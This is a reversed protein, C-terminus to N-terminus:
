KCKIGRQKRQKNYCKRCMGRAYHVDGCLTCCKPTTKKRLPMQMSNLSIGAPESFAMERLCKMCRWGQPSDYGAAEEGCRHCIKKVRAPKGTKRRRGM